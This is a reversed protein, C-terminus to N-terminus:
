YRYYYFFIFIWCRYLSLCLCHALSLSTNLPSFRQPPLFFLQVRSIARIYSPKLLHGGSRERDNAHRTQRSTQFTDSQLSSSEAHANGWTAPLGSAWVGVCGVPMRCGKFNGPKLTRACRVPHPFPDDTHSIHIYINKGKGRERESAKERARGSVRVRVCMCVCARM